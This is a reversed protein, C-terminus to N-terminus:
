HTFGKNFFYAAIYLVKEKKKLRVREDNCLPRM